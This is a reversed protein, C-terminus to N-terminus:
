VHTQQHVPSVKGGVHDGLETYLYFGGYNYAYFYM